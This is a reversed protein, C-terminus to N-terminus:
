RVVFGCLACLPVSTETEAAILIARFEFALGQKCTVSSAPKGNQIKPQAKQQFL